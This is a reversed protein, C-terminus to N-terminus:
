IKPPNPSVVRRGAYNSFPAPAAIATAALTALILSTNLKMTFLSHFSIFFFVPRCHYPPFPNFFSQSAACSSFLYSAEFIFLPISILM